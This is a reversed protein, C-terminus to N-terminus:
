YLKIPKINNEIVIETFKQKLSKHQICKTANMESEGHSVNAFVGNFFFVGWFFM